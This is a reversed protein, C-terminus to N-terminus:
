DRSGIHDFIRNASGRIKTDASNDLNRSIIRYSRANLAVLRDTDYHGDLNIGRCRVGIDNTGGANDRVDKATGRYSSAVLENGCRASSNLRQRGIRAAMDDTESQLAACRSRTDLDHYRDRRRATRAVLGIDINRQRVRAIKGNNRTLGLNVAREVIEIGRDICQVIIIWRRGRDIPVIKRIDRGSQVIAVVICPLRVCSSLISINGCARPM